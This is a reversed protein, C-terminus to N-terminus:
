DCCLQLIIENEVVLGAPTLQLRNEREVLLRQEKYEEVKNKLHHQVSEPRGRLLMDWSVGQSRRLNLMVKEMYLQQETLTEAFVGIDAGQNLGHIYKMLNKENQFRSTGDFSCAGLGFAKYPVHEWYSSNHRSQKDPRAFSSIEYHEFGHEKFFDRSWYFLDIMTDDCPLVVKNKKVSFYLPTDEHVTLFYMSIHTIPWTVVTALLAKWEQITIDPLGLILDISINSFYHQAQEILTIVDAAAQHRNLSKLVKDNLSQVGISLRNIGLSKWFALQEFRVTGPNIELTVETADSIIYTKRLTGFTDLLLADPYTSPTGGGFYLTHLPQKEAIQDTFNTIETRLAAHYREMFQDHSAIAVFPCYHCKYPCFPWHIYISRTPAGVNYHM